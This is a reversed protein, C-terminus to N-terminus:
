EGAAREGRRGLDPQLLCIAGGQSKRGGRGPDYRERWVQSFQYKGGAGTIPQDGRDFVALVRFRSGAGGSDAVREAQIYLPDDREM